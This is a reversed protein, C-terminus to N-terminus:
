TERYSSPPLIEIETMDAHPAFARNPIRPPHVPVANWLIAPLGSLHEFYYRQLAELERRVEPPLGKRGKRRDILLSQFYLRTYECRAWLDDIRNVIRPYQRATAIPRVDAPLLALWKVAREHLVDNNPDHAHRVARWDSVTGPELTPRPGVKAAEPREDAAPLIAKRALSM